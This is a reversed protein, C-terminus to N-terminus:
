ANANIDLVQFGMKILGDKVLKNATEEELPYKRYYGKIRLLHSSMELLYNWYENSESGDLQQILYCLYFPLQRFARLELANFKLKALTIKQKKLKM